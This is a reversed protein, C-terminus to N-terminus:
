VNALEGFTFYRTILANVKLRLTIDEITTDSVELSTTLLVNNPTNSGLVLLIINKSLEIPSKIENFDNIHLHIFSRVSYGFSSLSRISDVVIGSKDLNSEKFRSEAIDSILTSSFPIAIDHRLYSVTDSNIYDIYGLLISIDINIITSIINVFYIDDRDELNLDSVALIESLPITGLLSTAHNIAVLVDLPIEGVDILFIGQASLVADIHTKYYILILDNMDRNTFDPYDTFVSAIDDYHKDYNLSDFTSEIVDLLKVTDVPFMDHFHNIYDQNSLM